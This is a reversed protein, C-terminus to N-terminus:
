GSEPSNSQLGTAGSVMYRQTLFFRLGHYVFFMVMVVLAALVRVSVSMPMLVSVLFMVVMM